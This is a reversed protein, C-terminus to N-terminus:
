TKIGNLIIPTSPTSNTFSLDIIINDTGNWNFPTHFQIRNQGNVFAFASNYVNTYGTTVVSASNLASQTTHQINVSFFNATGGANAVDLMIGNINGATLGASTLDSASYHLQTRGSKENTKLLTALTTTGGAVTYQTESIISNLTVSTQSYNYYDYPALSTYPFVTGTFSSIIHSPYTLAELEIRSSDAIYTNCSYDWEGCGQNPFSSNSILNNKCRMNYRMIIKEYTTSGTPFQIATDRTTSGYKFTKYIITDGTVQSFLQLGISCFLLLFIKKM